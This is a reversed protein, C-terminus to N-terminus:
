GAVRKAAVNDTVGSSSANGAATGREQRKRRRSCVSESLKEVEKWEQLGESFRIKCVIQNKWIRTILGVASQM